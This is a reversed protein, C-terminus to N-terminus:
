DVEEDEEDEDDWEEDELDDDTEELDSDDDEFEEDLDDDDYALAAVVQRRHCGSNVTSFERRAKGMANSRECCLQLDLVRSLEMDRTVTGGCQSCTCSDGRGKYHGDFVFKVECGM